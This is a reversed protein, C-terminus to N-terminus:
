NRQHNRCGHRVFASWHSLNIMNEHSADHLKDSSPHREASQRVPPCSVTLTTCVCLPLSDLRDASGRTVLRQMGSERKKKKNRTRQRTPTGQTGSRRSIIVADGIMLSRIPLSALILDWKEGKRRGCSLRRRVRHGFGDECLVHLEAKASQDVSVGDRGDTKGSLSMFGAAIDQNPIM